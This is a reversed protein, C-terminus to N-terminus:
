PTYTFLEGMGWRFLADVPVTATAEDSDGNWYGIGVNLATRLHDKGTDRKEPDSSLKAAPIYFAAGEGSQNSTDPLAPLAGSNFGVIMSHMDGDWLADDFATNTTGLVMNCEMKYDVAENDSMGLISSGCKNPSRTITLSASFEDLCYTTAAEEAPAAIPTSRTGATDSIRLYANLHHCVGGDAYLAPVTDDTTNEYEVYPSMMEISMDLRGTEATYIWNVKTAKCGFCTSKWGIGNLKVIISQTSPVGKQPIVAQRMPYVVDALTLPATLAPSYKIVEGTVDTIGAFETRGNTVTKIMAGAIDDSLGTADDCTHSTATDATQVIDTDPAALAAEQLGTLICNWLPMKSFADFVTGDGIGRCPFTLTFTANKRKYWSGDSAQLSAPEAPMEYLGDRAVANQDTLIPEGPQLIASRDTIEAGYFVIAGVAPVGTAAAVSGFSTEVGVEASVIHKTAM